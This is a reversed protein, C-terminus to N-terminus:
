PTLHVVEVSLSEAVLSRHCAGPEREVCLLVPRSAGGAIRALADTADPTSLLLMYGEIFAPALLVRDRKLTRERADVMKQLARLEVSPALAPEHRYAVKAEELIQQLRTSNAFAHAAGRVGRRARIDVLLDIRATRLRDVFTEATFGYVGITYVRELM